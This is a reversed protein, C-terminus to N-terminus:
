MDEFNDYPDEGVELVGADHDYYLWGADGTRGTRRCKVLRIKTSSKILETEGMKDRSLLITNFAIQNISSSGLLDYESVEHPNKQDPKRMHSVVFFSVNTQKALKLLSDMAFKVTDNDLNPLAAQLPDLIFVDLEYAVITNRVKKIMDDLELSGQHDIIALREGWDIGNYVEQAKDLTEEETVRKKAHIDILGSTLEGVTTELGLYGVKIDSKDLFGHLLNNVFTTKGISTLAGVVTIEGKAAGGKMMASLVPMSSPLEIVSATRREEVAEWAQDFTVVGVASFIKSNWFEQTFEARKGTRLYDNADKYHSLTVIKAKSPTLLEACANAAKRGAEDSDFIFVVYEFSEIYDLNAKVDKAASSASHVSIVPYKSGMMEFAAMADDQGETITLYKGGTGFANMGFLTAEKFEGTIKFAKEEHSRVKTAVLDGESNYLPYIINGRDDKKVKYKKATEQSISREPLPRIEGTYYLNMTKKTDVSKTGGDKPKSAKNCSFCYTSGDDYVALADSSGCNDCNTHHLFM